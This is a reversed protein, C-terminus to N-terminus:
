GAFEYERHMEELFTPRVREALYKWFLPDHGGNVLHAVEHALTELLDHETRYTLWAPHQQDTAVLYVHIESSAWYCHGRVLGLGYWGDVLALGRLPLGLRRVASTTIAALRHCRETLSRRAVERLPSPSPQRPNRRSGTGRSPSRCGLPRHVEQGCRDYWFVRM